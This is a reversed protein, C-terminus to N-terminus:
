SLEAVVEDRETAMGSLQTELGVVKEEAKRRLRAYVKTEAQAEERGKKEKAYRALLKSYRQNSKTSTELAMRQATQNKLLLDSIQEHLRSINGELALKQELENDILKLLSRDPETKFTPGDLEENKVAGEKPEACGKVTSKSYNPVLFSPDVSPSEKVFMDEGVEQYYQEIYRQSDTDDDLPGGPKFFRFRHNLRPSILSGIPQGQSTLGADVLRQRPPTGIHM